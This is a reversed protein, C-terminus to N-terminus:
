QKPAFKQIRYNGTDMVYVNGEKDVTVTEPNLFEGDKSGKNGFKTIFNGETDFKQIRHNGIDVAFINGNFDTALGGIKEFQGDGSGKIGCRSVDGLSSYKIIAPGFKIGTNYFPNQMLTYNNRLFTVYIYGTEDIAIDNGFLKHFDMVRPIEIFTGKRFSSKYIFHGSSDYKTIYDGNDKLYIYGKTDLALGISTAKWKTIFNGYSDFKQIRGNGLDSIYVNGDSDVVIGRPLEFQGNSQGENGWKTIFKGSSDFKQIRNNYYDSVYVYGSKDAAIYIFDSIYLLDDIYLPRSKNLCTEKNIIETERWNLKLRDLELMFDYQIMEKNKLKQLKILKDNAIKNKLNEISKNTIKYLPSPGRNFQGDGSGKSGWRTVFVYNNSSFLDKKEKEKNCGLLTVTFLILYILVHKKNM